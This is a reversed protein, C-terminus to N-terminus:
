MSLEPGPMGAWRDGNGNHTIIAASRTSYRSCRPRSRIFTPASPGVPHWLYGVVATIAMSLGAWALGIFQVRLFYEPIPTPLPEIM